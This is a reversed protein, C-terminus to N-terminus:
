VHARGIQRIHALAASHRNLRFECLGLMVWATGVEPRLATTQGFARAAGAFDEREYLLTGLYFWGEAWDPRLALAERYLGAAEEVRNAARAQEARAATEEFSRRGPPRQALSPAGSLVAFLAALTVTKLTTSRM